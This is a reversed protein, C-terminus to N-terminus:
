ETPPVLLREPSTAIRSAAGGSSEPEFENKVSPRASATSALPGSPTPGPISHRAAIEGRRVVRQSRQVPTVGAKWDVEDSDQGMTRTSNNEANQPNCQRAVRAKLEKLKDWIGM